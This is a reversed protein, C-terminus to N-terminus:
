AEMDLFNVHAGGGSPLICPDRPVMQFVLTRETVLPTHRAYFVAGGVPATITQKLEGTLPDTVQALPTGKSVLEGLHVLPLFIGGCDSHVRVLGGEELVTSRWGAHCPRDIIGRADMFRLCARGIAEASEMDVQDTAKTYLTYAETDWLRWNYHLTATDFSGPVHRLVYPLGFDEGHNGQEGPGLMVRAHDLFDGQLYFSSLHVGYKFGQVGKFLGAAIRQTTEGKDYGPSMRNIDTNDGVWFRRFMNMSATNVCPVVMVLKGAVLQGSEEIKRMKHVLRSAIYTQQIEDGRLGAVICIARELEALREEGVGPQGLVLGDETRGFLFAQVQMDERYPMAISFLTKELM